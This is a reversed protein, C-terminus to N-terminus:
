PQFGKKPSFDGSEAENLEWHKSLKGKQGGGGLAAPNNAGFGWIQASRFVCSLKEKNPGM